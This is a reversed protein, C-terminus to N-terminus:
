TFCFGAMVSKLGWGNHFNRLKTVRLDAQPKRLCFPNEVNMVDTWLRHFFRSASTSSTYNLKRFQLQSNRHCERLRLLWICRIGRNAVGRYGKWLHRFRPDSIMKARWICSAVKPNWLISSESNCCKHICFIGEEILFPKTHKLSSSNVASNVSATSLINSTSRLLLVTTVNGNVLGAYEIMCSLSCISWRRM